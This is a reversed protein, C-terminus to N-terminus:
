SVVDTKHYIFKSEVIVIGKLKLEKLNMKINIDPILFTNKKMYKTYLIQSRCCRYNRKHSIM